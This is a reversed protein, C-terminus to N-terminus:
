RAIESRYDEVERLRHAEVRALEAQHRQETLELRAHERALEAEHRRDTWRVVLWASLSVLVVVPFQQLTPVLWEPVQNM